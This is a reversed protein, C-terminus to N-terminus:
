PDIRAHLLDPRRTAGSSRDQIRKIRLLDGLFIDLNQGKRGKSSTLNRHDRNSRTSLHTIALNDQLNMSRLHSKLTSGGFSHEVNEFISLHRVSRASSPINIGVPDLKHCTM